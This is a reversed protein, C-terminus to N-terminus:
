SRARRRPLRRALVLGVGGLLMLSGPEPVVSAVPATQLQVVLNQFDFYEDPAKGDGYDNFALLWTKNTSSGLGTIEYTIAHDEGDGNEAALTSIYKDSNLTVPDQAVFQYPNSSPTFTATGTASFGTGSVSFLPIFTGGASSGEIYGFPTSPDEANSEKVTATVQGTAWLSDTGNVGPSDTTTGTLPTTDNVRTATVAGNSYSVGDGSLVFTGGYVHDLITVQSNNGALPSQIATYGAQASGALGLCVVASAVANRVAQVPSRHARSKSNQGKGHRKAVQVTCDRM